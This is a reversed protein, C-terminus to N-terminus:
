TTIILASYNIEPVGTTPSGFTYGIFVTQYSIVLTTYAGLGTLYTTIQAQLDAVSVTSELGKVTAAM